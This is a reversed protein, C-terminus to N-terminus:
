VGNLFEKGLSTIARKNTISIYGQEILFSEMSYLYNEKSTQLYGCITTLGLGKPNGNLLNLLKIDAETIGNKVINYAKFIQNIPQNMFIFSELMRIAIRPTSRSNKALSVYTDDSIEINPFVKSKYKKILVILEDVTYADLTKQIRMRDVLPKFKKLLIGKETTACFLSFPLIPQGEIQFDELIPLIYNAVNKNITHIEDLFLIGGNVECLKDILQQPSKISSAVCEVFNLGLQEALIYAIATKGMGAKGDVMLHPFPKKLDKCGKIYGKLISKLSEQGVYGDFEKPRYLKQGEGKQLKSTDILEPKIVIEHPNSSSKKEKKPFMCAFCLENTDINTEFISSCQKCFKAQITDM